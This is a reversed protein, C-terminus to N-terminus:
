GINQYTLICSKKKIQTHINIFNIKVNILIRCAIDLLYFTGEESNISSKSSLSSEYIESNKEIETLVSEGREIPPIKNEVMKSTAIKKNIFKEFKSVTTDHLLNSSEVLKYTNDLHQYIIEFDNLKIEVSTKNHTHNSHKFKTGEVCTRNLSDEMLMSESAFSTENFNLKKKNLKGNRYFKRLVHQLANESKTTQGELSKRTTNLENQPTKRSLMSTLPSKFPETIRRKTNSSLDANLYMPPATM